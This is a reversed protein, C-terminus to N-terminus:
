AEGGAALGLGASGLRGLLSRDVRRQHVAADLDHDAGLEVHRLIVVHGDACALGALNGAVVSQGDHKRAGVLASGYVEEDGGVAFRQRAEGCVVQGLVRDEGDVNGAAGDAAVGSGLYRDDVEVVELARVAGAQM